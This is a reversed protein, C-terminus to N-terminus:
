TVKLSDFTEFDIVHGRKIYVYTHVLNNISLLKTCVNELYHGVSKVSGAAGSLSLGLTGNVFFIHLTARFFFMFEWFSHLPRPVYGGGGRQKCFLSLVLLSTLYM